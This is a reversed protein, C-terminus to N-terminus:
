ISKENFGFIRELGKLVLNPVVFTSSKGKIDFFEADGGTLFVSLPGYRLTLETIYGSIENRIGVVAGSRMASETDNGLLPTAGKPNVVPLQGTHEHLSSLRLGIGPAINGGCYVGAASVFDFTVATGADVVLINQGPAMSWAGVAAAMRDMGLTAPTSYENKLPVPTNFTLQRLGLSEMWGRMDSGTERVACWMGGSVPIGSLASELAEVSQSGSYVERLGSSSSVAAKVRTNGFDLFLTM